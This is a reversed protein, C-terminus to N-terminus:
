RKLLARLVEKEEPTLEHLKSKEMLKLLALERPEQIQKLLMAQIEQFIEEPNLNFEIQALQAVKQSFEKNEKLYEFLQGTNLASTLAPNLNSNKSLINLIQNYLKKDPSNELLFDQPLQSIKQPNQILYATIKEIPSLKGLVMPKIVLEPSTLNNELDNKNKLLQRKIKISALGSLQSIQDILLDKYHSEPIKELYPLALLVLQSKGELIKLNLGQTLVQLLYDSLSLAGSARALFKEQGEQRILSDPDQDEPLFLFNIEEQGTILGLVNNLARLAAQRGAQDGDFCIILKKCIKFIAKFHSESSATGLTAMAFPLGHEHLAVVDMYGEVLIIQTIPKLSSEAKRSEYLGYLVEGKHFIPTEPSNLYKPKDLDNLVRGGFGVVRGRRDHIPFIIRHRFRDYIKGQDNKVLLGADLLAQTQDEPFHKLLADWQDPAYGICFTKAIQGSLGRSKLYDIAVQANPDQRLQHQFFLSAQAMIKYLTDTPTQSNQSDQSDSSNHPNHSNHSQAPTFNEYIIELGLQKSLEEIAEIFELHDHDMLFTLANGHKGCGFCYFFQKEQNVSFSPTKEKHFPCCASYNIGKKKLAIRRGILDVIDVRELLEQIFGQPIKKSM